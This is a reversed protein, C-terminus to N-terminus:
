AVERATWAPLAEAAQLEEDCTACVGLSHEPDTDFALKDAPLARECEVCVFTETM